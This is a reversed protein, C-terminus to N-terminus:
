SECMLPQRAESLPFFALPDQLSAEPLGSLDLSPCSNAFSVCHGLLPNLVPGLVGPEAGQGWNRKPQVCKGMGSEGLLM